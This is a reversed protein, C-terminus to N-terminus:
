QVGLISSPTSGGDQFDVHHWEDATRYDDRVAVHHIRREALRWIVNVNIRKRIAFSSWIFQYSPSGDITSSQENFLAYLKLM